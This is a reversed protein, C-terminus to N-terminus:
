WRKKFRKELIPVSDKIYMSSIMKSTLAELIEWINLINKWM